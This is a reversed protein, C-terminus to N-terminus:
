VRAYYDFISNIEKNKKEVEIHALEQIEKVQDMRDAPLAIYRQYLFRLKFTPLIKWDMKEHAENMLSLEGEDISFM